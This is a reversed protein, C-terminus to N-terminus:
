KGEYLKTDKEEDCKLSMSLVASIAYLAGMLVFIVRGGIFDSLIGSASRGLPSIVGSLTYNVGYVRGLLYNPTSKQLLSNFSSACIGFAFGCFFISTVILYQSTYLSILGFGLAQIFYSLLLYQYPKLKLYVIASYGLLQGLALASYIFGIISSQNEISITLNKDLFVPLIVFFPSYALLGVSSVLFLNRITKNNIVFKFGLFVENIFKTNGDKKTQETNVNLFMGTVMAVIFTSANIILVTELSLFSLLIGGLAPGALYGISETMGITSNAVTLEENKVLSPIVANVTPEFFQTAGGLLFSLTSLMFINLMNAYSFISMLVIICGCIFSSWIILKKRNIKDSFIGSVSGFIFNAIAFSALVIGTGSGSKTIGYAAAILTVSYIGDGLRSILMGIFMWFINKNSRLLNVQPNTNLQLM